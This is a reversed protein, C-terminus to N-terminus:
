KTTPADPFKFPPLPHGTELLTKLGSLIMPWGKRGGAKYKEDLSPDHFESVTLRVVEGLAEIQYVVKAEPLKRFEELWEVHWTISLRQSRVSELVRGQCDIRGDEMLLKWPSGVKWDSEM